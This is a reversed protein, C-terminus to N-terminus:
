REVTPPMHFPLPAGGPRGDAYRITARRRAEVLWAAMERLVAAERLAEHTRERAEAGHSGPGLAAALEEEGVFVFPRFRLDLFRRYRVERRVMGRAWTPDLAADELWQLLAPMGGTRAAAARWAVELAEEDEGIVLQAAEQDVLLGDIMRDVDERLIPENSPRMGFLSFARAIGADSATLTRGNVEALVADLFTAAAHGAGPLGILAVGVIAIRLTLLGSRYRLLTAM